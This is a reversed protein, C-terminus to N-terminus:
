DRVRLGHRRALAVLWNRDLKAERAAASLNGGHRGLLAEVYERTFHDVM